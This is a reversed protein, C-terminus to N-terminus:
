MTSDVNGTWGVIRSRRKMFPLVSYVTKNMGQGLQNPGDVSDMLRQLRGETKTNIELYPIHIM